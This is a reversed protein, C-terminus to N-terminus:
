FIVAGILASNSSDTFDALPAPPHEILALRAELAANRDELAAYWTFLEALMSNLKEGAARATDGLGDDPTRGLGIPQFGKM